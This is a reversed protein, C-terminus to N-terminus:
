GGLGILLSGLMAPWQILQGPHPQMQLYGSLLGPLGVLILALVAFTALNRGLVGFLDQIVKGMDLQGSMEGTTGDMASM